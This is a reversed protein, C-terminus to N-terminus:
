GVAVAADHEKGALAAYTLRYGGARRGNPQRTLAVPCQQQGSVRRGMQAIYEADGDAVLYQGDGADIIQPCGVDVGLRGRSDVLLADQVIGALATPRFRRNLDHGFLQIRGARFLDSGEILEDFIGGAVLPVDDDEVGRWGAM